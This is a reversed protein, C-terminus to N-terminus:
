KICKFTSLVTNPVSSYFTDDDDDDNFTALYVLSRINDGSKM